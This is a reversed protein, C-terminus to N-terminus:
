NVCVCVCVRNQINPALKILYTIEISRGPRIIDANPKSTPKPTPLQAPKGNVNVTLNAPLIDKQISHEYYGFRLHIQKGFESKGNIFERNNLIENTQESNLCFNFYYTLPRQNPNGLYWQVFLFMHSKNKFQLWRKKM